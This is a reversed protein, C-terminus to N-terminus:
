LDTIKPRNAVYIALNGVTDGTIGLDMVVSEPAKM